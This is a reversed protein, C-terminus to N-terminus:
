RKAEKVVPALLAGIERVIRINEMMVVTDRLPDSQELRALVKQNQVVMEEALRAIGRQVSECSAPTRQIDRISNAYLLLGREACIATEQFESRDIEGSALKDYADRIDRMSIRLYDLGNEVTDAYQKATRLQHSHLAIPSVFASVSPKFTQASAYLYLSSIPAFSFLAFYRLTKSLFTNSRM